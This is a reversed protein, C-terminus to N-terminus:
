SRTTVAQAIVPCSAMARGSISAAVLKAVVHHVAENMKPGVRPPPFAQRTPAGFRKASTTHINGTAPLPTRIAGFVRVRCGAPGPILRKSPGEGPTM